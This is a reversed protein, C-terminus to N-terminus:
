HHHNDGNGCDHHEHDDSQEEVNEIYPDKEETINKIHVELLNTNRERPSIYFDDFSAPILVTEGKKLNITDSKDSITYQITASGETCIYLIFSNFEETYIHYTDTLEINNITFHRCDAIEKIGTVARLYCTKDDYKKYDICDIAEELHMQRATAPNHERGWDYLRFTLDSAEQIEAIVLGGGAAHVTGAEIFFCDGKKPKYVNLLEEVTQNNCKEYFESASTEKKFGMYVKADEEAEMVYWFETKGYSYYREFATKDDPHVQVSIMENIDLIKVILPFQINFYQYIEDGLLDGMYTEIVENIDNEELFGNSIVSSQDDIDFLEWSEGIHEKDPSDQEEEFIEKNYKKVLKNGGWVRYKLVPNFKLPYLKKM